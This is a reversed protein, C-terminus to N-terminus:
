FSQVRDPSFVMFHNDPTGVSGDADGCIFRNVEVGNGDLGAPRLYLIKKVTGELAPPQPEIYLTDQDRWTVRAPEDNIKCDVTEGVSFTTPFHIVFM